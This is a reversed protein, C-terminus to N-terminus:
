KSDGNMLSKAGVSGGVAGILWSMQNLYNALTAIDLTIHGQVIGAIAGVHYLAAAGLGAVRVPCFTKGDPETLLDNLM